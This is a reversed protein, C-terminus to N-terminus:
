LETGLIKKDGADFKIVYMESITLVKQGKKILNYFILKGKRKMKEFM